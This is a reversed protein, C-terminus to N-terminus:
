KVIVVMSELAKIRHGTFLFRLKKKVEWMSKKNIKPCHPSLQLYFRKRSLFIPIICRRLHDEVAFSVRVM